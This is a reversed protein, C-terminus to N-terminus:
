GVDFGFIEMHDIMRFGDLCVISVVASASEESRIRRRVFPWYVTRFWLDFWMDRFRLTVSSTWEWCKNGDTVCYKCDCIIREVSSKSLGVDEHLLECLRWCPMHIGTVDHVNVVYIKSLKDELLHSYPVVPRYEDILECNITLREAASNETKKECDSLTEAFTQNFLAFGERDDDPLWSM